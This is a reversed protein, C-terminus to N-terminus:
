AGIRHIWYGPRRRQHAVALIRIREPEVAYFLSYPFRRLVKHRVDTTGVLPAAEPYEVLLSISREVESQFGAALADTETGYTRSADLFEASAEPHFSAKPGFREPM